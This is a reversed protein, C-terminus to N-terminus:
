TPAIMHTCGFRVLSLCLSEFFGLSFPFDQLTTEIKGSLSLTVIAERLSESFSFCAKVACSAAGWGVPVRDSFDYRLCYSFVVSSVCCGVVDTSIGTRAETGVSPFSFCCSTRNSQTNFFVELEPSSAGKRKSINACSALIGARIVIYLSSRREFSILFASLSASALESDNQCMHQLGSFIITLRQTRFTMMYLRSYRGDGESSLVHEEFIIFV